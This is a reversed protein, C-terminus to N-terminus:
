LSISNAVVIGNAANIPARYEATPDELVTDTRANASEDTEVGWLCVTMDDSASAFIEPNSPHWAVQFVMSWPLPMLVPVSTPGACATRPFYDM